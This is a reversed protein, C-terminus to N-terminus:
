QIMHAQLYHPLPFISFDALSDLPQRFMFGHQSSILNIQRHTTRVKCYPTIGQVTYISRYPPLPLTNHTHTTRNVYYELNACFRTHNRYHYRMDIVVSCGKDLKEMNLGPGSSVSRELEGLNNHGTM